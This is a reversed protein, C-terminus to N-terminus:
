TTDFRNLHLWIGFAKVIVTLAGLKWMLQINIATEGNQFGIEMEGTEASMIHACSM